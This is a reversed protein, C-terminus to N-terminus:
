PKTEAIAPVDGFMVTIESMNTQNPAPNRTCRFAQRTMGRGSRGVVESMSCPCLCRSPIEGKAAPATASCCSCRFVGERELLRGFCQRCVHDVITWGSEHAEAM